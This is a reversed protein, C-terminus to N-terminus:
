GRRMATSLARETARKNEQPQTQGYFNQNVITNSTRNSGGSSNFGTGTAPAPQLGGGLGGFPNKLRDTVSKIRDLAGNLPNTVRDTIWESIGDLTSEIGRRLANGIASGIKGFFEISRSLATIISEIRSTISELIEDAAQRIDDRALWWAAILSTIYAIVAVVAAGTASLGAIFGGISVVVSGVTSVVTVLAAILPALLVVLATIAIGWKMTSNETDTLWDILATLWEVLKPLVKTSFEEVHPIVSLVAAEVSPWLENAQKLLNDTMPTAATVIKRYTGEVLTGIDKYTNGMSEFSDDFEAQMAADPALNLEQAVKALDEYQTGFLEMGIRFKDTESDVKSLENYAMEFAETLTLAGTSLGDLFGDTTMASGTGSHQQQWEALEARSDALKSTYGQLKDEMVSLKAAAKSLDIESTDASLRSQEEKVSKIKDALQQVQSTQKRIQKELKSNTIGGFLEALVDRKKDMGDGSQITQVTNSFEKLSDAIKDTGLVGGAMGSELFTVLQKAGIEAQGFVPAYEAITDLFDDGAGLGRKLGEAVTDFAEDASYGADDMLSVISESVKSFDKDFADAITKSGRTIKEVMAADAGIKASQLAVKEFAAGAEEVSNFFNDSWISRVTMALSDADEDMASLSDGFRKELKDTQLSVKGASVVVAGLAAVAGAAGAKLMGAGVSSLKANATTAFDTIKGKSKALGPAVDKDDVVAKLILNALRM